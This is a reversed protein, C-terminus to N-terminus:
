LPSFDSVANRGRSTKAADGFSAFIGLVLVLLLVLVIQRQV